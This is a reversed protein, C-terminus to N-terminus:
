VFLSFLYMHIYVGWTHIFLVYTFLIKTRLYNRMHLHFITVYLTVYLNDLSHMYFCVAYVIGTAMCVNTAACKSRKTSLNYM